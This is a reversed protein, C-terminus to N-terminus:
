LTLSSASFTVLLHPLLHCSFFDLPRRLTRKLSDIFRIKLNLNYPRADSTRRFVYNKSNGSPFYGHKRRAAVSKAKAFDASESKRKQIEDQINIEYFGM